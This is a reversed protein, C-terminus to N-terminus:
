ERGLITSNVRTLFGPLSNSCNGKEARPVLLQIGFDKLLVLPEYYCLIPNAVWRVWANNEEGFQYSRDQITERLPSSIILSFRNSSLDNYFQEFYIPTGSMALNILVKKDYEPVLPVNKIYGFTLLQRQDMFLIEGRPQSLIVAERISELGADTENRSPLTKLIQDNPDLDALTAIWAKQDTFSIPWLQLLSPYAPLVLALVVVLKLWHSFFNIDTICKPTLKSWALATCFLLNIMLMDMNHLDGGGGIKVSIILGVVLFALSSLVISAIQWRNLKLVGRRMLITLIIVIPGIAILLAILIGNGYTANPLLRYWLLPQRTAESVIAEPSISGTMVNLFIKFITHSLVLSLQQRLSTLVFPLAYGGFVGAVGLSIARVWDRKTLGGEETSAGALELMGLWMGPAFMWTWRSLQALYGAAIVLPISLWLPRRWALAVLIACVVLPPHIPGQNLFTYAWLGALLWAGVQRGPAKFAVWGLVLYPLIYTMAVWLRAGVITVHPLLFPLGGVFQRGIDLLVPIPKDAPYDYLERGFMVSYDWLRNGESWGLSFPYDTVGQLPVAMVVVGASLVLGTVFGSWEILRTRRTFLVGLLLVSLGWIELRLFPKHIVVGWATYQLLWVPAVLVLAVLVWRFAGLRERVSTIIRTARELRPADWIAVLSVAISFLMFLSFGTLILAWNLSLEGLWTGTGWAMEEFELWTFGHAALSIGSLIIKRIVIPNTMPKM